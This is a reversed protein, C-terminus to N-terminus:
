AIFINFMWQEEKTNELKHQVRTASVLDPWLCFCVDMTSLCILFLHICQREGADMLIEKIDWNVPVSLKRIQFHCLILIQIRKKKLKHEACQLGWIYIAIIIIIIVSTCGVYYEWQVCNIVIHLDTWSNWLLCPRWVTCYAVSFNVPWDACRQTM